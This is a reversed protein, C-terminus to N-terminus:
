KAISGHFDNWQLPDPVPGEPLVTVGDTVEPEGKELYYTKFRVVKDDHNGRVCLAGLEKARRIVGQSDPGKAVMDGLLIMKDTSANYNINSLLTNFEQLCGHIDGVAFVRQSNNFANEDLTRIRTLNAYASLTHSSATNSQKKVVVVIATVLVAVIVLAIAAAVLRWFYKRRRFQLNNGFKEASMTNVNSSDPPIGSVQKDNDHQQGAFYFSGMTYSSLLLLSLLYAYAASHM